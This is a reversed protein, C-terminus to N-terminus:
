KTALDRWQKSSSKEDAIQHLRINNTAPIGSLNFTKHKDVYWTCSEFYAQLSSNKFHYGERAFPENWAICLDADSLDMAKLANVSYERDSSDAIVYEENDRHVIGTLTKGKASKVSLKVTNLGDAYEGTYKAYASSYGERKLESAM